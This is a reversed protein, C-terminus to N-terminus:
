GQIIIYPLTYGLTYRAVMGLLQARFSLKSYVDSAFSGVVQTHSLKMSIKNKWNELLANM